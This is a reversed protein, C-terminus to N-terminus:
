LGGTWLYQSIQEIEFFLRKFGLKGGEKVALGCRFLLQFQFAPQCRIFVGTFDVVLEAV